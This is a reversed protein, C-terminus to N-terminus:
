YRAAASTAAVERDSTAETDAPEGIEAVGGEEPELAEPFIAHGRDDNIRFFPDQQLHEQVAVHRPARPGPSVGADGTGDRQITGQGSGLPADHVICRGVLAAGEYDLGRGFPRLGARKTESPRHSSKGQHLRRLTARAIRDSSNSPAEQKGVAKVQYPTSQKEVLLEELCRHRLANDDARARVPGAHSRAVDREDPVLEINPPVSTYVLARDAFNSRREGYQYREDCVGAFHQRRNWRDINERKHQIVSQLHLKSFERTRNLPWRARGENVWEHALDDFRIPWGRRTFYNALQCLHKLDAARVRTSGHDPM